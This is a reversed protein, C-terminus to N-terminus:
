EVNGIWTNKYGKLVLDFDLDELLCAESVKTTDLDFSGLSGLSQTLPIIFDVSESLMLNLEKADTVLVVPIGKSHAYAIEWITGSDMSENSLVAVVLDSQEIKDIDNHYTKFRWKMSGFDSNDGQNEKPQYFNTALNRSSLIKVVWNLLKSQDDTFWGSALYGTFRYPNNTGMEPTGKPTILHQVTIM